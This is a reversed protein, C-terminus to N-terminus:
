YPMDKLGGGNIVNKFGNKELIQRALESRNGTRCYVIILRDRSGFIKLKSEIEALPINISGKYNGAAFEEPTRVDVILAGGAIWKKVTASDAINGSVAYSVSNLLSIIIILKAFISFNKLLIINIHNKM